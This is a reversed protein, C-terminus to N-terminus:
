RSASPTSCSSGSRTTASTTSPSSRRCRPRDIAQTEPESGPSPGRYTEDSIISASGEDDFKWHEPFNRNGDVGDVAHDTTRCRRAAAMPTTTASPRGGCGTGTSRTSTATPTRSWSSGCSPRELINIVEPKEERWGKIFWELLRRNVEGAIWERAHILSSYLVAPKSGDESDDEDATLRLAIIDRPHGTARRTPGTRRGVVELDLIDENAAELDDHVAAFGDPGDYDMWVKFGASAQQKALQTSTLGADNRWLRVSGFKELAGRDSPYAVIELSVLGSSTSEVSAIDYGASKIATAGAQDTIVTYMQLQANASSTGGPGAGAPVMSAGILAITAVISLVAVRHKM